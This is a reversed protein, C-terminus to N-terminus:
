MLGQKRLELVVHKTFRKTDKKVNDYTQVNTTAAWVKTEEGIDWLEAEMSALSSLARDAVSTAWVARRLDDDILAAALWVASYGKSPPRYGKEYGKLEVTFLADAGHENALSIVTNAAELATIDLEFQSSVIIEVGTETMNDAFYKEAEQRLQADGEYFVVLIKDYPRIEFDPNIWSVTTEGHQSELDARGDSDAQPTDACGTLLASWAAIALLAFLNRCPLSKIM